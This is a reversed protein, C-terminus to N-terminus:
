HALSMDPVHELSQKPFCVYPICRGNYRGRQNWFKIGM